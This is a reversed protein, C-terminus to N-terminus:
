KGHYKVMKFTKDQLASKKYEAFLEGLGVAEFHLVFADFLRRLEVGENGSCCALTAFRWEQMNGSIVSLIPEGTNTSATTVSLVKAVRQLLEDLTCKDTAILYVYHWHRTLSTDQLGASPEGGPNEFEKLTGIFGSASKVVMSRADLEKTVSRHLIEKCAVLYNNWDIVTTGIPIMQAKM